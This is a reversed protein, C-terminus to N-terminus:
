VVESLGLAVPLVTLRYGDRYGSIFLMLSPNSLAVGSKAKASHTPRTVIEPSLSNSRHTTMINHTAGGIRTMTRFFLQVSKPTQETYRNMNIIQMIIPSILVDGNSHNSVEITIIKEAIQNIESTEKTGINSTNAPSRFNSLQNPSRKICGVKPPAAGFEHLIQNARM